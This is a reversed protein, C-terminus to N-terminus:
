RAAAGRLRKFEQIIAQAMAPDGGRDPHHRKVMARYRAKIDEWDMLPNVGLIESALGLAKKKIVRVREATGYRVRADFAALWDLQGSESMGRLALLNEFMAFDRDWRAAQDPTCRGRLFMFKRQFGQSLFSRAFLWARKHKEQPRDCLDPNFCRQQVDALLRVRLDDPLDWDNPFGKFGLALGRSFRRWEDPSVHDAILEYCPDTM